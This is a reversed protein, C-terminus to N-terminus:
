DQALSDRSARIICSKQPQPQPRPLQPATPKNHERAVHSSLRDTSRAAIRTTPSSTERLPAFFSAFIICVRRLSRRYPAFISPFLLPTVVTATIESATPIPALEAMKLRTLEM